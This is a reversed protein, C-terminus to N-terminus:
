TGASAKAALPGASEGTRPRFDLEVKERLYDKLVFVEIDQKFNRRLFYGTYNGSAKDAEAVHLIREQGALDTVKGGHKVATDWCVVYRMNDFTHNMPAEFFFKLEVYFLDSLGIPKPGQMKAIVDIGSHTDYDVIAFPFLNPELTALQVLLAYVGSERTPEVLAVDKFMACNSGLARKQRWEFDRREKESTLYANAESELWEIERWDDSAIIEDYLREIEERVDALIESPTNAVSGRNATLSLHQCNFFAHFKTFESGKSTIWENKREVPIFDKCLWVGYREQVTYAGAPPTYGPRRLMKNYGQKVKNGEICFMANYRAFPHRRLTGGRVIQKCYYDPARVIYTDFLEKIPKSADPFHHGFDLIEAEPADLGKLRIIANSYQDHGFARECSGFKTFWKIYDECVITLLYSM